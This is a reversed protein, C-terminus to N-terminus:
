WEQGRLPWGQDRAAALADTFEPTAWGPGPNPHALNYVVPQHYPDDDLGYPKGDIVLVYQGHSSAPHNITLTGSLTWWGYRACLAISVGSTLPVVVVPIDGSTAQEASEFLAVKPGAHVRRIREEVEDQPTDGWLALKGAELSASADSYIKDKM